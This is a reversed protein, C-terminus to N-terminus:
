IQITYIGTMALLWRTRGKPRGSSLSRSSAIWEKKPEISQKAASAIVFATM